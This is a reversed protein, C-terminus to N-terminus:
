NVNCSKCICNYMDSDNNKEVVKVPNKAVCKYCTPEGCETCHNLCKKEGCMLNTCSACQWIDEFDDYKLQCNRCVYIDKCENCHKKFRNRNVLTANIPCYRCKIMTTM